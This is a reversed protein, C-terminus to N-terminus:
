AIKKMRGDSEGKGASVGRGSGKNKLDRLCNEEM